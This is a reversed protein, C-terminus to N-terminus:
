LEEAAFNSNDSFPQRYSVLSTSGIRLLSFGAYRRILPVSSLVSALFTEKREIAFSKNLYSKWFDQNTKCRFILEEYLSQSQEIQRKLDLELPWNKSFFNKYFFLHIPESRAICAGTMASMKAKIKSVMPDNEQTWPATSFFANWARSVRWLRERSEPSVPRWNQAKLLLGINEEVELLTKLAAVDMPNTLNAHILQSAKRLVKLGLEAKGTEQILQLARYASLTAIKYNPGSTPQTWNSYSEDIKTTFDDLSNIHDCQNIKDMLELNVSKIESSKLAAKIGEREKLKRLPYVRLAEQLGPLIPWEDGPFLERLHPWADSSFDSPPFLPEKELAELDSLLMELLPSDDQIQKQLLDIFQSRLLWNGGLSYVLYLSTLSALAFLFIRM